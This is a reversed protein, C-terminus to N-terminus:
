SVGFPQPPVRYVDRMGKRTEIADLSPLTSEPASRVGGAAAVRPHVLAEAYRREGTTTREESQLGLARATRLIGELRERGRRLGERVAEDGARPLYAALVRPADGDHVADLTAAVLEVDRLQSSSRQLWWAAERLAHRENRLAADELKSLAAGRLVRRVERLQPEECQWALFATANPAAAVRHVRASAGTAPHRAAELFAETEPSAPLVDLARAVWRWDQESYAVCLLSENPRVRRPDSSEEFLQVDGRIAAPDVPASLACLAQGDRVREIRALRNDTTLLLPCKVAPTSEASASGEMGILRLGEVYGDGDLPLCQKM